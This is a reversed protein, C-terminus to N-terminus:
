GKTALLVKVPREKRRCFGKVMSLIESAIM